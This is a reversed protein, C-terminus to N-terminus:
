LEFPKGCKLCKEDKTIFLYREGCVGCCYENKLAEEFEIFNQKILERTDKNIKVDLIVTNPYNFIPLCGSTHIAKIIKTPTVIDKNYNNLWYEKQFTINEYKVTEYEEKNYSRLHEDDLPPIVEIVLLWHTRKSFPVQILDGFQIDEINVM